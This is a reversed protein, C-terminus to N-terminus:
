QVPDREWVVEQALWVILRVASKTNKVSMESM